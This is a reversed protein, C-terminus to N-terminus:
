AKHHAEMRGSQKFPCNCRCQLVSPNRKDLRCSQLQQSGKHRSHLSLQPRDLSVHAVASGQPLPLGSCLGSHQASHTDLCLVDQHLHGHCAHELGAIGDHAIALQLGNNQRDPARVRELYAQVHSRCQMCLFAAILTVNSAAICAHAIFAQDASETFTQAPDQRIDLQYQRFLAFPFQNFYMAHLVHECTQRTGALRMVNHIASAHHQPIRVKPHQGACPPEQMLRELRQARGQGVVRAVAALNHAVGEAPAGCGHKGHHVDAEKTDHTVCGITM